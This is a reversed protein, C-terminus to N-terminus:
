KTMLVQPKHALMYEIRGMLVRQYLNGGRTVEFRVWFFWVRAESWEANAARILDRAEEARRAPVTIKM